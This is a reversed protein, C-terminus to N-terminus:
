QMERMDEKCTIVLRVGTATSTAAPPAHLPTRVSRRQGSGQSVGKEPPGYVVPSDAVQM